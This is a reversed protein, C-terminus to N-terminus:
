VTLVFTRSASLYQVAEDQSIGLPKLCTVQPLIGTLLIQEVHFGVSEFFRQAEDYDAFAYEELKRGTTGYIREMVKAIDPSMQRMLRFRAKVMVDPTVWVGAEHQILLRHINGAARLREALTLYMLLGESVVALPGRSPLVASVLDMDIVNTADVDYFRLNPRQGIIQQVIMKKNIIMELLDTEVYYSDPVESMVMGRPLLGAALELTQRYSFRELVANVSKYRAELHLPMRRLLEAADGILREAVAATDVCAAIDKCHLIDTQQRFHATLLATESIRAFDLTQAM